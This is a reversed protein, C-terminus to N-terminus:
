TFVFRLRRGVSRVVVQPTPPVVVPPTQSVVLVLSTILNGGTIPVNADVEILIPKVCKIISVTMFVKYKSIQMTQVQASTVSVNAVGVCGNRLAKVSTSFPGVVVSNLLTGTSRAIDNVFKDTTTNAVPKYGGVIVSLASSECVLILLIAFNILM